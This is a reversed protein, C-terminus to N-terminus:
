KTPKGGCELEYALIRALSEPTSGGLQTTKQRGDPATVTLLGDDVLWRYTDGNRSVKGKPRVLNSRDCV